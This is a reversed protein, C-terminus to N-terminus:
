AVYCCLPREVLRCLLVTATRRYLIWNNNFCVVRTDPLEPSMITQKTEINIRTCEEHSLFGIGVYGFLTHVMSCLVSTTWRYQCIFLFRRIKSSPLVNSRYVNRAPLHKLLKLTRQWRPAPKAITLANSEYNTSDQWALTRQKGQPFFNSLAVQNWTRVRAHIWLQM